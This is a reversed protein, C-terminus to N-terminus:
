KKRFWKERAHDRVADIMSVLLVVAGAVVLVSASICASVVLIAFADTPTM